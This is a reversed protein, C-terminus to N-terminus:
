APIPTACADWIGLCPFTFGLLVEPVTQLGKTPETVKISRQPSRGKHAALSHFGRPFAIPSRGKPAAPGTPLAVGLVPHSSLSARNLVQQSQSLLQGERPGPKGIFWPAQHPTEATLDPLSPLRASGGHCSLWSLSVCQFLKAHATAPPRATLEEASQSAPCPCSSLPFFSHHVPCASALCPHAM